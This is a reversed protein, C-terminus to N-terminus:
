GFTITQKVIGSSNKRADFVEFEILNEGQKFGKMKTTLPSLKGKLTQAKIWRGKNIRYRWFGLGVADGARGKVLLTGAPKVGRIKTISFGPAILDDIRVPLTFDVTNGDLNTARLLLNATGIPGKSELYLLMGEMGAALVTPASNSVITIVVPPAPVIADFRLFTNAGPTVPAVGAVADLVPVQTVAGSPAGDVTVSSSYNGVPLGNILDVINISSAGVVEGFATFGGNQFDLNGPNSAGTNFFWECTASDRTGGIKAMSITRGTNTNSIGPENQVEDQKPISAWATPAATASAPKYGGGQFIFGAINRHLYSNEYDGRAAYGLFNNVTKPTATDYLAVIISESATYFWAGRPRGPDRFLGSIDIFGNVGINQKPLSFAPNAVQPISVGPLVRLFHAREFRKDTDFIVGVFMRYVGPASVTGTILGTTENITLGPALDRAVYSEPTGSFVPIQLSVAVGARAGSGEPIELPPFGTTPDNRTPDNFLDLPGSPKVLSPSETMTSAEAGKLATIRFKYTEEASTTSTGRYVEFNAPLLPGVQTWAGDGIQREVRYGTEDDANDVWTVHLRNQNPAYAVVSTPADPPVALVPSSFLLLSFLPNLRM